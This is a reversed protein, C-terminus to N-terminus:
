RMWQRTMMITIIFYLDRLLVFGPGTQVLRGLRLNSGKEDYPM